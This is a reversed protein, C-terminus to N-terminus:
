KQFQGEVAAGASSRRSPKRPYKRRAEPSTANDLIGEKGDYEDSDFGDHVETFVYADVCPLFIAGM